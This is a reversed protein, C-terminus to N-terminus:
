FILEKSLKNKNQDNNNLKIDKLSVKVAQIDLDPLIPICQWYKKKYLMDLEYDNPYLYIIPSKSSKMLWNCSKPLLYNSQPPLVCLLQEIPKIPKGLDFKVDNLDYKRIFDAMDSIFPAHDFPYYWEWSPCKNFYYNAVWILGEFYKDCANKVLERQNIETHYYKKYYRFKWDEPNDKGLEITNEIKFLLNDIRHMEQVCPDNSACKHRFKRSNYMNFFFEDEFTSLYELFMQLFPQNYTIKNNDGILILYEEINDYTHAYAQLLLDLGNICKKDYCKIDVSPIHPLFDNGLFYCIFVFDRIISDDDLKRDILEDYLLDNIEQMICERLKDISVYNLKETGSKKRDFEQAERLLYMNKRNTSLALFILDADLGYIVYKYNNDNKRIYQLLKHEGEGPTNATSFIIKRDGFDSEQCFEKIKNTIKVMFDTGPTIASNNWYNDIEKGHKKKIRDNLIKDKVSKFRRMRQQKIKAVPAVGDIAIYILKKPDSYEIIYKLYEICGEIMKEELETQNKLKPNDALVKFCQPHLLCNADILLADMDDMSLDKVEGNKEFVFKFSKHKKLFWLFFGPVGM